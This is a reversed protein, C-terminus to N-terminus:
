VQIKSRLEDRRTEFDELGIEHAEFAVQLAALQALLEDQDHVPAVVEADSPAPDSAKSRRREQKAQAKAQNALERARKAFTPRPRAV